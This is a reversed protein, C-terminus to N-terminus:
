LFNHNRVAFCYREEAMVPSDQYWSMMSLYIIEIMLGLDLLLMIRNHKRIYQSVIFFILMYGGLSFRLCHIFIHAYVIKAMYGHDLLYMPHSHRYIQHGSEVCDEHYLVSASAFCITKECHINDYIHCSRCILGYM